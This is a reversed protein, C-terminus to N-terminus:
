SGVVLTTSQSLTDHCVPFNRHNLLKQFGRFGQRDDHL